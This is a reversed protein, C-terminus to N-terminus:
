IVAFDLMRFELCNKCSPLVYQSFRFRTLNPVRNKEVTELLALSRGLVQMNDSIFRFVGFYFRCAKPM